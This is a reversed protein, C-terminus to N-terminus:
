QIRKYTHDCYSDGTGIQNNREFKWKDANVRAIAWDGERVYPSLKSMGMPNLAECFPCNSVHLKFVDNCVDFAEKENLYKVTGLELDKNRQLLDAGENTLLMYFTELDQNSLSEIINALKKIPIEIMLEPM